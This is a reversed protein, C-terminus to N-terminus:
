SSLCCFIPYIFIFLTAFLCVRVDQTVGWFREIKTGNEYVIEHGKINTSPALLVIKFFHNCNYVMHTTIILIPTM